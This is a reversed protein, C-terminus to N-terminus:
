HQQWLDMPVAYQRGFSAIRRPSVSVVSAYDVGRSPPMDGVGVPCSLNAVSRLVDGPLSCSLEAPVVAWTNVFQQLAEDGLSLEYLFIVVNLSILAYM